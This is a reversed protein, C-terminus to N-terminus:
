IHILCFFIMLKANGRADSNCDGCKVIKGLNQRMQLRKHCIEDAFVNNVLNISISCAFFADCGLLSLSDANSVCAKNSTEVEYAWEM